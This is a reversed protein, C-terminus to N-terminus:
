KKLDILITLTVISHKNVATLCDFVVLSSQRLQLM